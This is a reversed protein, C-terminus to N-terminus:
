LLSPVLFFYAILSIRIIDFIDYLHPWYDEWVTTGDPLSRFSIVAEVVLFSEWPGCGGGQIPRIYARRPSEPTEEKPCQLVGEHTSQSPKTIKQSPEILYGAALLAFIFADGPDDLLAHTEGINQPKDWWLLYMILACLVHMAVHLELLTVPLGTAKRLICHVVMWIGQACVVPKGLADTKTKVGAKRQDVGNMRHGIRPLLNRFGDSTVTTPLNPLRDPPCITVGGMGVLYAGAMGFTDDKSGPTITERGPTSQTECWDKRLKRADIWEAAAMTLMVELALIAIIVYMLKVQFEVLWKRNPVFDIHITTWVCLVLTLVCNFFPYELEWTWGTGGKM